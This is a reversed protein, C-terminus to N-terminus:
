PTDKRERTPETGWTPAPKPQDRLVMELASAYGEALGHQYPNPDIDDIGNAVARWNTAAARIGDESWM